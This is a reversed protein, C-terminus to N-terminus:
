NWLFISSTIPLVSMHDVFHLLPGFQWAYMFGFTKLVLSQNIYTMHFNLNEDLQLIYGIPYTAGDTIIATFYVKAWERTLILILLSYQHFNNNLTKREFPPIKTTISSLSFSAPCALYLVQYFNFASVIIVGWFIQTNM